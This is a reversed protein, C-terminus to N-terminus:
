RIHSAEVPATRKERRGLRRGVNRLNQSALVVGPRDRVVDPVLSTNNCEDMEGFTAAAARQM